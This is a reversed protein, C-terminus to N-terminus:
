IEPEAFYDEDYEGRLVLSTWRMFDWNAWNESPNPTHWYNVSMNIADGDDIIEVQHYWLAPIYLVQGPKLDLVYKTCPIFEPGRPDVTPFLVTSPPEDIKIVFKEDQLDYTAAKLFKEKCCDVEGPPVLWIRKTGQIQVYINDYNDSHMRSTTGAAGIWLNVAETPGLLKTDQLNLKKPIISEPLQAFERNLNDDQSQMYYHSNEAQTRIATLLEAVSMQQIYPKVFLDGLPADANGFPTRAVPVVIDKVENLIQASSVALVPPLLCPRSVAIHLDLDGVSVEEVELPYEAAAIEARRQLGRQIMSQFAM